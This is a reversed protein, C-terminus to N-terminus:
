CSVWNVVYFLCWYVGCIWTGWMMFYLWRLLLFGAPTLIDFHNSREPHDPDPKFYEIDLAATQRGAKRIVTSTVAHGAWLEVFDYAQVVLAFVRLSYSSGSSCLNLYLWMGALNMAVM